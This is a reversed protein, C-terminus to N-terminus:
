KFIYFILYILRIVEPYNQGFSETFICFHILSKIYVYTFGNNLYINLNIKEVYM